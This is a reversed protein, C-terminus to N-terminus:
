NELFKYLNKNSFGIWLLVIMEKSNNSLIKIHILITMVLKMFQFGNKLLQRFIVDSYM